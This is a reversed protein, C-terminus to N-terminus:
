DTNMLRMSNLIVACAAIMDIIISFWASGIGSIGLVILIAKVSFTAVSNVEEFHRIRKTLEIVKPVSEISSKYIYDGEGSPNSSFTCLAAPSSVQNGTILLGNKKKGTFDSIVSNYSDSTFEPYFSDFSFETALKEAEEFVDETILACKGIGCEKIKNTLDALKPNVAQTLSITAAYSDNITLIYTDPNITDSYRKGRQEYYDAKALVIHNGSLNIGVGTGPIEKFDSIYEERIEGSYVGLIAQAMAQKSFYVAHACIFLVNETDLHESTINISEANEITLIGNKDIVVNSCRACDSIHSPKKFIVGYDASCTLGIATLLEASANVSMPNCIVLLALARRISEFYSYHFLLPGCIAFVLVFILFLQLVSKASATIGKQHDSVLDYRKVSNMIYARDNEGCYEMGDLVSDMSKTKAYSLLLDGLFFSLFLGAAELSAKIIFLVVGSICVALAPTFERQDIFAKIASIVFVFGSIIASGIRLIVSVVPGTFLSVALLVASVFLRVYILTNKETDERGSNM